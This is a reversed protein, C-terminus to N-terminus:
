TGGQIEPGTRWRKRRGDRGLPAIYYGQARGQEVYLVYLAVIEERRGAEASRGFVVLLLRRMVVYELSESRCLCQKGFGGLEIGEGLVALSRTTEARRRM